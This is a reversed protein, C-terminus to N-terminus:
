QNKLLHSVFYSVYHVILRLGNFNVKVNQIFRDSAFMVDRFKSPVFCSGIIFNRESLHWCDNENDETGKQRSMIKREKEEVKKRPLLKHHSFGVSVCVCVASSFSLGLQDQRCGSERSVVITKADWMKQGPTGGEESIEECHRCCRLFFLSSLAHFFSLPSLTRSISLYISLSLSLSLSPILSLLQYSTKDFIVSAKM